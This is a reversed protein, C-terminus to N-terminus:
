LVLARECRVEKALAVADELSEPNMKWNGAMCSERAM